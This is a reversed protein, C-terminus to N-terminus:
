IESLAYFGLLIVLVLEGGTGGAYALTERPVSIASTYIPILWLSVRVDPVYM